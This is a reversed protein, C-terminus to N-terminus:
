GGTKLGWIVSQRHEEGGEKGWPVEGVGGRKRVKNPSRRSTGKTGLRQKLEHGLRRVANLTYWM